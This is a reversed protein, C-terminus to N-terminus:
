CRSPRDLLKAEKWFRAMDKTLPQWYRGAYRSKIYALFEAYWDAPYEELSCRGGNFRMYDPHTNLLAMGGKEVIWDLKDKWIRNDKERLIVFLTHDQPLTYPIEVYGGRETRGHYWFPFIRQIGEPQPEFIDTDFTSVGYAIDLDLMWELNRYMSPSSLGCAEWEKLYVNVRQARKEFIKRNSFMKGDHVLGHVGVEFGDERLRLRLAPSVRYDEPVFFFASRFGLSKELDALLECQDHGKMTDVDHNLLLAFRKGEPWGVWGPPTDGAREDIPWINAAGRRKYAAIGRRIRIQLWRPILPRLSYFLTLLTM